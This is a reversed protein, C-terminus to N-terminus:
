INNELTQFSITMAFLKLYELLKTRFEFLFPFKTEVKLTSVFYLFIIMIYTLNRLIIFELTYIVIILHIICILEVM